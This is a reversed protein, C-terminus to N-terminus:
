TIPLRDLEGDRKTDDGEEDSDDQGQEHRSSMGDMGFDDDEAGVL